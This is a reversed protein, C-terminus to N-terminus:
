QDLGEEIHKENLWLTKDKGVITEVGINEYKKRSRDVMNINHIGCLNWPKKNKRENWLIIILICTM